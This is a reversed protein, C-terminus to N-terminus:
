YNNQSSSVHVASADGGCWRAYVNRPASLMTEEMQNQSSMPVYLFINDAPSSQAATCATLVGQRCVVYNSNTDNNNNVNGNNLNVNYHNGAGNVESTWYNNNIFGSGFLLLLETVWGRNEPM